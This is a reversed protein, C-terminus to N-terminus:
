NTFNTDRLSGLGCFKGNGGGPYHWGVRNERGKQCFGSGDTLPKSGIDAFDNGAQSFRKSKITIM